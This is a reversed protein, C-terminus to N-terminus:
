FNSLLTQHPIQSSRVRIEQSSKGLDGCAIAILPNQYWDKSDQVM